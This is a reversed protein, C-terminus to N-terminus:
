RTGTAMLKWLPDSLCRFANNQSFFASSSAGMGQRGRDLLSDTRDYNSIALHSSVSSCFSSVQEIKGTVIWGQTLAEASGGLVGPKEHQMCGVAASEGRYGCIQSRFVWLHLPCCRLQVQRPESPWKARGFLWPCGDLMRSFHSLRPPAVWMVGSHSVTCYYMYYYWTIGAWSVDWFNSPDHRKIGKESTIKLSWFGHGWAGFEVEPELTAPSHPMVHPVGHMFVENLEPTFAFVDGNRQPFSRPLSRHGEVWRLGLGIPNWADWVM